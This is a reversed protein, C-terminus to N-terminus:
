INNNMNVMFDNLVLKLAKEKERENMEGVTVSGTYTLVNKKLRMDEAKISMAVTRPNYDTISASIQVPYNELMYGTFYSDKDEEPINLANNGAENAAQMYSITSIGLQGLDSAIAEGVDLNGTYGEQRYGSIPMIQITVPKMGPHFVNPEVNFNGHVNANINREHHPHHSESPGLVKDLIRDAARVAIREGANRYRTHVRNHNAPYMTAEVPQSSIVFTLLCVALSIFKKM